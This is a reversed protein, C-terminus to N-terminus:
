HLGKLSITGHKRPLPRRTLIYYAGGALGAFSAAALLTKQWWSAM